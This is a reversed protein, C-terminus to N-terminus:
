FSLEQIFAAVRVDSSGRTVQDFDFFHALVSRIDLDIWISITNLFKETILYQLSRDVFVLQDTTGNPDYIDAPLFGAKPM